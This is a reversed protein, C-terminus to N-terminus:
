KLVRLCAGALCCSVVSLVGSIFWCVCMSTSNVYILVGWPQNERIDQLCERIMERKDEGFTKVFVRQHISHHEFRDQDQLHSEIIITFVLCVSWCVLLINTLILMHLVTLIKKDMLIIYLMFLSNVYGNVEKGM